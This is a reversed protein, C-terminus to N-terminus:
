LQGREFSIMLRIPELKVRDHGGNKVDFFAARPAFFRFIFKMLEADFVFAPFDSGVGCVELFHLFNGALGFGGDEIDVAAYEGVETHFLQRGKQFGLFRGRWSQSEEGDGADNNQPTSCGPLEDPEYGSPRLNM